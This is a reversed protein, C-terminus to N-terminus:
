TRRGSGQSTGDEFDFVKPAPLRIRRDVPSARGRQGRLPLWAEQPAAARATATEVPVSLAARRGTTATGCNRRPATWRVGRGSREWNSRSGRAAACPDPLPVVRGGREIAVEEDVTWGEVTAPGGGHDLWLRTVQGDISVELVARGAAEGLRRVMVAPPRNGAYPVLVTDVALTPRGAITYRVM